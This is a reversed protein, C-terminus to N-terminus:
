FNVRLALQLQRSSTTTATVVGASPNAAGSSAFADTNPLSFNSHNLSNFMEFRFTTSVRDHFPFTKELGLDIDELGPGILTNRGLNGYTGTIPFSFACPDFWNAATGVRTGAPFGNCGASTGRTPNNSAGPILNPRDAQGATTLNRSNNTALLATFPLGSSFSAIANLTWGNVVAGMTRSHAHFPLLYSLNGVVVHKANFDSLAWEPGYPNEPNMSSQPSRLSEGPSTGSSDDLAKAYTYFIQGQLGKSSQHRISVSVSNYNSDGNSQYYRIGAWATNRRPAGAPYYVAGNAIGAPCNALSTSCVTPIPSDGEVETISHRAGNGAYAVQAVTNKWLEQQISVNYQYNTPTKQSPDLLLLGTVGTSSGPPLGTFLNVGNPFPPNTASFLGAFPPNKAIVHYIYELFQNHYIGFGARIVTKGNQKPEFSLGLRPEFNKKTVQAFSSTVVLSTAALSPLQSTIGNTASPNTPAEWRLGLNLVLHPNVKVDDQFYVAFLTQLLPEHFPTGIPSAIQFNSPIGKLFNTFSSFTYAGRLSGNSQTNEGIRQINGGAKFTHRGATHTWDDGWEFVDFVSFSPGAGLTNGLMTLARSGAAGVAGLQITGLTQGTVFTLASVDTTYEFDASSVTRNFAFHFNNLTSNSLVSNWQLTSYQRRSQATSVENPFAQLANTRDTDTMYRALISNKANLQYDLRGMGNDQNTIATPAYSFQASGDGFDRGNPLPYLNLYPVVSPNVTVTGTPLIGLRAQANPVTSIQTTGLAQRLGEYGVFFFIKDKKIPGGFVGGFQNRRFPPPSTGTDFYNKADVASNRIYEFVTGQFKNSGSRTVATIISGMSHGYEAKWSNTLIRFEEITEMGLNTGSAGGPTGNAGDNVDTGDMLFLNTTGRQGGVSFRKGTGFNFQNGTVAGPAAVTVGPQILALQDWSRGNLPLSHISRSDVLSGLSATTTEILPAGGTVEVHETVAGVNLGFDVVAERAVTLVIGTRIETQFGDKTATVRYQGVNLGPASYSGQQNTELNRAIGTEENLVTVKAGPLVGGSKDNVTGSITGTAVQAWIAPTLTVFLVCVAVFNTRM